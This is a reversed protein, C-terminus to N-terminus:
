IEKIIGKKYDFTGFIPSKGKRENSFVLVVSPFTSNYIQNNGTLFKIRSTAFYIYSVNPLIYNHFWKTDTRNPVLFVSQNNNKFEEIAKKFWDVIKRGYPPNCFAYENDSTKWSQKLGDDEITFYRDCKKNKINCCVDLTCKYKMNITNFVDLPTAWDEKNSSFLINNM